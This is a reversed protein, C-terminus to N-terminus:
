QRVPLSVLGAEPQLVVEFLTLTQLCYIDPEVVSYVRDGAIRVQHCPTPKYGTVHYDNQEIVFVAAEVLQSDGPQPQWPLLSAILLPLFILSTM